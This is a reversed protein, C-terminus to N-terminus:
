EVADAVTTGQEKSGISDSSENSRERVSPGTATQGALRGLVVASLLGNGSHYGRDSTGSVGVAAGRAAKLNPIVGGTKLRVRADRTVNLGGQAHFLAGTVKVAHFPRTQPIGPSPEVSHTPAILLYKHLSRHFGSASWVASIWWFRLQTRASFQVQPRPTM